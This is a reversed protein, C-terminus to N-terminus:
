EHLTGWVVRENGSLDRVVTVGTFSASRMLHAVEEAQRRDCELFLAGGEKLHTTSQAVLVRILALGDASKGDLAMRPEWGVERSVEEIWAPTLYPPNSVIIGYKDRSNYLLDDEVVELRHGLITRANHDAVSLADRSKDSLVVEVSLEAALTIGVAGSGTCLDIIPLIEDLPRETAYALVAEVLTETDARPILVRRDVVFTRGWFEKIGRIYAMPQHELRKSRLHALTELEAATLPRQYYILQSAHDLGTVMELLLRADLSPSSAVGAELFLAVTERKWSDITMIEDRQL